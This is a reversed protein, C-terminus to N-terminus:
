QDSRPETSSATLTAEVERDTRRARQRAEREMLLYGAEDVQVLLAMLKHGHDQRGANYHILASPSWVSEFVGAQCIQDWLAARGEYTSLVTRYWGQREEEVRKERRGSTRVQKEDAVNGQYARPEM